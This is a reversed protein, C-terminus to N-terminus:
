MSLNLVSLVKEYVEQPTSTLKMKLTIAEDQIREYPNVQKSFLVISPTNLAAAVHLIGTDSSITLRAGKVYSLLASFDLADCLNVGNKNKLRDIREKEKAGRGTFLLKIGQVDLLEILKSWREEEWEREPDGVGMHLIVADNFQAKSPPVTTHLLRLISPPIGLPILLQLYYAALYQNKEEYAFAHTLLPGFGGSSYGLRHPIGAQWFLPIANPFYYYLDIAVDYKEKRIEKLARYRTTMHRWAKRAFTKEFRNLKAHDFFHVKDILPHSELVERNWSGILFGVQAEPYAKKLVPLVATAMILDGLHAMNSLLIKQPVPLPVKKKPFLSLVQDIVRICFLAKKNKFFYYIV